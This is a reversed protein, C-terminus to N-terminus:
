LGPKSDDGREDENRRWFSLWWHTLFRPFCVWPNFRVRSKSKGVLSTEQNQWCSQLSVGPANWTHERKSRPLSPHQHRSQDDHKRTREGERLNDQLKLIETQKLPELDSGYVFFPFLSGLQSVFWMRPVFFLLLWLLLFISSFLDQLFSNLPDKDDYVWTLCTWLSASMKEVEEKKYIQTFWAALLSTFIDVIKISIM